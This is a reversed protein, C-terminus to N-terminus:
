PFSPSEVNLHEYVSKDQKTENKDKDEIVVLQGQKIACGSVLVAFILLAVILRKM